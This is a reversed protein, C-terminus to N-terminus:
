KHAFYRKLGETYDAVAQPYDGKAEYVDGRYHYYGFFEPSIGIANGLDALAGDLDGLRKRLLGREALASDNAPDLRLAEGLKAIAGAVDGDAQMEDAERLLGEVSEEPLM